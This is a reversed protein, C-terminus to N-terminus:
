RLCVGTHAGSLEEAESLLVQLWASIGSPVKLEQLHLGIKPAQKITSGVEPDRRRRGRLAPLECVFGLRAGGAGPTGASDGKACIDGSRTVIRGGRTILPLVSAAPRIGGRHTASDIRASGGRSEESPAAPAGAGRSRFLRRARM